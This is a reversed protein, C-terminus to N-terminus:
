LNPIAMKLNRVKSKQSEHRNPQFFVGFILQLELIEDGYERMQRKNGSPSQLRSPSDHPNKFGHTAGM